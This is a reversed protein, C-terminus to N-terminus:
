AARATAFDLDLIATLAALSRTCCEFSLVANSEIQEAISAPAGTAIDALEQALARGIIMRERIQALERLLESM